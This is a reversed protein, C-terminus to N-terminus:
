LSQKFTPYLAAARAASPQIGLKTLTMSVYFSQAQFYLNEFM